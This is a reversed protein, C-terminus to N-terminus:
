RRDFRLRVSKTLQGRIVDSNERVPALVASLAPPPEAVVIVDGEPIGDIRWRGRGDSSTVGLVVGVATRVEIDAGVVPEGIDDDITGAISGGEVLEITVAVRKSGDDHLEVTQGVWGDALVEVEVSEGVLRELTAMGYRDTTASTYGARLEVDALPDGRVASRVL